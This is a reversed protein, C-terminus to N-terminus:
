NKGDFRCQWEILWSNFLQIAWQVKKRTNVPIRDNIHKEIEQPDTFAHRTKPLISKDMDIDPIDDFPDGIDIEFFDDPFIENM